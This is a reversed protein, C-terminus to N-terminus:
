IAPGPTNPEIHHRTTCGVKSKKNENGNTANAPVLLRRRSRQDLVRGIGLISRLALPTTAHVIGHVSSLTSRLNNVTM